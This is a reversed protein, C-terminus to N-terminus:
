IFPNWCSIKIIKNVFNFLYWKILYKKMIFFDLVLLILYQLFNNSNM